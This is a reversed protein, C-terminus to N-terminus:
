MDEDITTLDSIFKNFENFAEPSLNRRVEEFTTRPIRVTYLHGKELLKYMFECAKSEKLTGFAFIYENSDIVFRL